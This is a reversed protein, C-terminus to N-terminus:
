PRAPLTQSLLTLQRVVLTLHHTHAVKRWEKSGGSKNTGNARNYIYQDGWSFNPGYAQYLASNALTTCLTKTQGWGNGKVATGKVFIWSNDNSYRVAVYQSMFRPDVSTITASATPYDSFCPTRGNGLNQVVYLWLAYEHRPIPHIVHQPIGTQSSPYSTSSLIVTRWPDQGSLSNITALAQQKLNDNANQIDGYDIIIDILSPQLNLLNLLQPFAHWTTPSLSIAVGNSVNRQVAHIYNASSTPSVVPVIEKGHSRADNICMDLPHSRSSGHKDLYKLDLLVPRNPTWSTALNTGFDSLYGSLSKKYCDNEYDWDIDLITIIPTIGSITTQNLQMLSEYEAPKWRIQPYYHHYSM